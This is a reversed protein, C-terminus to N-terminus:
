WVVSRLGVGWWVTASKTSKVCLVINKVYKYNFNSSKTELNFEKKGFGM